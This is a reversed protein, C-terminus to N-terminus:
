TGKKLNGDGIRTKKFVAFLFPRSDAGRGLARAQACIRTQGIFRTRSANLLKDIVM